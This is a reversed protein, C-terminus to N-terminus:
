FPIEDDLEERLSKPPSEPEPKPEPKPLPVLNLADSPVPVRICDVTKGRMAAMTPYLEIRGGRWDDTDGGHMAAISDYNTMNVVLGKRAKAFYIVLKSQEEGRDNKLVEPAARDIQVVVPKGKLDAAKLYKSPFLEDRKM